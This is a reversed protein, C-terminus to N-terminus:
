VALLYVEVFAMVTSTAVRRVTMPTAVIGTIRTRRAFRAVCQRIVRPDVV